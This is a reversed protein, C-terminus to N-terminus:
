PLLGGEGTKELSEALACAPLGLDKATDRLLCGQDSAGKVSMMTRLEIADPNDVNASIWATRKSGVGLPDASAELGAHRDVDCIRNVAAAFARRESAPMKPEPPSAACATLVLVPALLISPHRMASQCVLLSFGQSPPAVAM